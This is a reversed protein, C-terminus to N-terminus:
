LSILSLFVQIDMDSAIDLLPAVALSQMVCSLVEDDELGQPTTMKVIPRSGKDDTMKQNLFTIRLLTVLFM